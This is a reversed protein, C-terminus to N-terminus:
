VNAASPDDKKTSQFFAQRQHYFGLAFLGQNGLSFTKPFPSAKLHETVETLAKDVVKFAWPRESDGRLKGLHQQGKQLLTPFVTAPATSATGYYRDVITANAGPIALSQAKDLVALLRGLVYATEACSTDLSVSIEKRTINPSRVLCARILAARAALANEAEYRKKPDQSGLASSETRTRRVAAELL